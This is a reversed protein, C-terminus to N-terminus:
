FLCADEPMGDASSTFLFSSFSRWQVDPLRHGQYPCLEPTESERIKFLGRSVSGKYRTLSLESAAEYTLKLRLYELM